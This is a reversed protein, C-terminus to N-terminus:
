ISEMENSKTSHQDGLVGLLFLKLMEQHRALLSTEPNAQWYFLDSTRMANLYHALTEPNHKKPIESAEQAARFLITMITLMGSSASPNQQLDINQARHKLLPALYVYKDQLYDAEVEFLYTLRARLGQLQLLTNQIDDRRERMEAKFHQDLISEKTPFYKYLTAKAIVAQASISEMTVNEYGTSEFMAWAIETVRSLTQNVKRQRRDPENITKPEDDQNQLNAEKAVVPQKPLKSKSM